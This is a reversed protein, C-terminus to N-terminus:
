ASMTILLLPLVIASRVQSPSLVLLGKVIKSTAASQCSSIIGCRGICGDLTGTLSCKSGRNAVLLCVVAGILWVLSEGRLEYAVVWKGNWPPYSASNGQACLSNAVQELNSAFLRCHSDFRLMFTIFTCFMVFSVCYSVNWFCCFIMFLHYWESDCQRITLTSNFLIIKKHKKQQKQLTLWQM